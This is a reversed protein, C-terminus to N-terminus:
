ASMSFKLFKRLIEHQAATDGGSAPNCQLLCVMPPFTTDPGNLDTYLLSRASWDLVLGATERPHKRRRCPMCLYLARSLSQALRCPPQGLRLQSRADGPPGDLHMWQRAPEQYPAGDGGELTSVLGSIKRLAAVQNRVMSQLRGYGHKEFVRVHANLPLSAAGPWNTTEKVTTLCSGFSPAMEQCKLCVHRAHCGLLQGV